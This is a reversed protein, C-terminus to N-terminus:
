TLAKGQRLPIELLPHVSVSRIVNLLKEAELPARREKLKGLKEHKLAAADKFRCPESMAWRGAM